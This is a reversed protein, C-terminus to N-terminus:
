WTAASSTPCRRCTSTVNAGTPSSSGTLVAVVAAVTGGEVAGTSPATEAVDSGVSTTAGVAAGGAGTGLTTPKPRLSAAACSVLKWTTTRTAPSGTALQLGITSDCSGFGGVTSAAPSFTVITVRGSRSGIPQRGMKMPGSSM